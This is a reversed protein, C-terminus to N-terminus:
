EFVFQQGHDFRIRFDGGVDNSAPYALRCLSHSGGRTVSEPLEETTKTAVPSASEWSNLRGAFREEGPVGAKGVLVRQSRYSRTAIPHGSVPHIEFTRM